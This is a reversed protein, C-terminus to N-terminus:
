GMIRCGRRVALSSRRDKRGATASNSTSACPTAANPNGSTRGRAPTWAPAHPQSWVPPGADPQQQPVPAHAIGAGSGAGAELGAQGRQRSSAGARGPAGATAAAFGVTVHTAAHCACFHRPSPGSPSVASDGATGGTTGWAPRSWGAGM